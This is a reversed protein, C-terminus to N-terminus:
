LRPRGNATREPARRAIEEAVDAPTMQEALKALALRVVASRTATIKPRLKRGAVRVAELYEDATTDIYISYKALDEVSDEQSTAKKIPTPASVPRVPAAKPAASPPPETEAAPAIPLDVQAARPKHMPPPLQRSRAKDRQADLQDLGSSM